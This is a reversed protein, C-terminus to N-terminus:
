EYSALVSRLLPSPVVEAPWAGAAAAVAASSPRPPADDVGWHSQPTITPQPPKRRRGSSMQALLLEVEAESIEGLPTDGGWLAASVDALLQEDQVERPSPPLAHKQRPPRPVPSIASQDAHQRAAATSEPESSSSSAAVAAAAARGRPRASAAPQQAGRGRSHQSHRRGGGGRGRVVTGDGDAACPSAGRRRGRSPASRQRTAAAATRSSCAPTPKASRLSVALCCYWHSGRFAAAHAV